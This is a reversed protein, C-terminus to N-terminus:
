KYNNINNVLILKTIYKIVQKFTTDTELSLMDSDFPVLGLRCEGFSLKEAINDKKNSNIQEELLHM